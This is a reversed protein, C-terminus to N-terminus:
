EQIDERKRGVFKRHPGNLSIMAPKTSDISIGITVIYIAYHPQVCVVMRSNARSILRATFPIQLDPHHIVGQFARSTTPVRDIHGMGMGGSPTRIYVLGTSRPVSYGCYFFEGQPEAAVYRRGAPKPLTPSLRLSAFDPFTPPGIPLPVFQTANITTAPLLPEDITTDDSDDDASLSAVSTPESDFSDSDAAEQIADM